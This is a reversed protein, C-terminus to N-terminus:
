IKSSIFTQFSIDNITVQPDFTIETLQFDYLTMANNFINSFTNNITLALTNKIQVRNQFFDNVSYQTTADKLQSIVM